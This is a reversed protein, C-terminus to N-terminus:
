EQKGCHGKGSVDSTQQILYLANLASLELAM